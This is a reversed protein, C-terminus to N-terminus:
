RRRAKVNKIRLHYRLGRLTLMGVSSDAEKAPQIIRHEMTELSPTLINNAHLEEIERTENGDLEEDDDDLEEDDIRVPPMPVPVPIDDLSLARMEQTDSPKQLGFLEFVSIQGTDFKSIPPEHILPVLSDREAEPSTALRSDAQQHEATSRKVDEIIEFPQVEDVIAQQQAEAEDQFDSIVPHPKTDDVAIPPEEIRSLFSPEPNVQNLEDTDQVIPNPKTDDEATPPEPILEREMAYSIPKQFNAVDEDTVADLKVSSPHRPQYESRADVDPADRMISKAEHTSIGGTERQIYKHLNLLSSTIQKTLVRKINLSNKLGGLLGETEYNFTWQVLTGEAIEQLRIRGKNESFSAGDVITYEYGLTDYWATVEAVYDTKGTSYRWRTGRGQHQTTLFSVSECDEQWQSNNALNGLYAWIFAPSSPILIAHDIVNM